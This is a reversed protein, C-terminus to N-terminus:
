PGTFGNARAELDAVRRQLGQVHQSLEALETAQADLGEALLTTTERVAEMLTGAVEGIGEALVKAATTM